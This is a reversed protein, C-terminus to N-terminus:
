VSGEVDSSIEEGTYFVLSSRGSAFDSYHPYEGGVTEFRFNGVGASFTPDKVLWEGPCCREGHVVRRGDREIDAYMLGRFVRLHVLFDAGEARLVFEQNPEDSIEYSTM